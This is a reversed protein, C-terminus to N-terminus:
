KKNEEDLAKDISAKVESLGKGTKASIFLNDRAAGIECLTQNEDILDSKNYANVRRIEAAGIEELVIEVAKIRKQINSESADIVHLLLDSYKVEELTSKFAEILQHPLREIFGVTDTFLVNRGSPLIMSRTTSDLTTFLADETKISDRTLANLLSSKGANTYGVLTIMPIARKQRLKRRTDRVKELKIIHQELTRIRSKIRRRDVELKKEGPGRRTGIGGGMRSMEVGRGRLRTLTYKLQALEVQTKGESSHANQAFIDLILATRDIVRCCAEKEINRQQTSSIDQNFIILEANLDDALDKIEEIKGTGILTANDFRQRAQLVEAVVEAGASEALSGLEGISIREESEKGLLCVGVLIAREMKSIDRDQPECTRNKRGM